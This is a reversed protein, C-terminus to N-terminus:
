KPLLLSRYQPINAEQLLVDLLQKCELADQKLQIARYCDSIAAALDGNHHWIKARALWLSMNNPQRDIQDSLADLDEHLLPADCIIDLMVEDSQLLSDEDNSPDSPKSIRNIASDTLISPLSDLEPKLELPSPLAELDDPIDTLMASLDDLFLTDSSEFHDSNAEKPMPVISDSEQTLHDAETNTLDSQIQTHAQETQIEDETVRFQDELEPHSPDEKPKPEAELPAIPTPVSPATQLGAKFRQISRKPPTRSSAPVLTENPGYKGTGKSLPKKAATPATDSKNADQLTTTSPSTLEITTEIKDSRETLDNSPKNDENQKVKVEQKPFNEPKTDLNNPVTSSVKRQRHSRSRRKRKVTSVIPILSDNSSKTETVSSPTEISVLELTRQIGKAQSSDLTVEQKSENRKPIGDQALALPDPLPTHMRRAQQEFCELHNEMPTLEVELANLRCQLVTLQYLQHQLDSMSKLKSM